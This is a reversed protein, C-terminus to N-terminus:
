KDRAALEAARAAIWQDDSVLHWRTGRRQGTRRVTGAQELERLLTRVHDPRANTLEALATTTLGDASALLSELKGAPPVIGARKSRSQRKTNPRRRRSAIARESPRPAPARERSETSGALESEATVHSPRRSRARVKARSGVLAERAELHAAIERNLDALRGEILELIEGSASVLGM